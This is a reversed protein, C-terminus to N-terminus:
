ILSSNNKNKDFKHVLVRMLKQSQKRGPRVKMALLIDRLAGVVVVCVDMM